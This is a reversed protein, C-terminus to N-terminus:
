INEKSKEYNELKDLLMYYEALFDLQMQFATGKDCKSEFNLMKWAGMCAKCFNLLANERQVIQEKLVQRAHDVGSRTVNAIIDAQTLSKGSVYFHSSEEDLEIKTIKNFVHHDHWLALVRDGVCCGAIQIANSM